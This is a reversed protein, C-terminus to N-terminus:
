IHQSHLSAYLGAQDLALDSMEYADKESALAAEQQIKGEVSDRTGTGVWAIQYIRISGAARRQYGQGRNECM